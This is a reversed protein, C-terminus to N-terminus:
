RRLPALLRQQEVIGSNGDRAPLEAVLELLEDAVALAEADTMAALERRRQDGLAAGAEQWRRVGERLREDDVTGM